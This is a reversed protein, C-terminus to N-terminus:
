GIRGSETSGFHEGSERLSGNGREVGELLLSEIRKEACVPEIVSLARVVLVREIRLSAGGSRQGRGSFVRAIGHFVYICAM